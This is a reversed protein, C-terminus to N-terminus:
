DGDVDRWEGDIPKTCGELKGQNGQSGKPDQQGPKEISTALNAQTALEKVFDRPLNWFMANGSKTLWSRKVGVEDRLVKLTLDSIPNHEGDMERKINVARKIDTQRLRIKDCNDNMRLYNNCLEVVVDTLVELIDANSEATKAKMDCAQHLENIIDVGAMEAVLLAISVLESERNAGMEITAKKVKERFERSWALEKLRAETFASSALRGWEDLGDPLNGFEPWFNRLVYDFSHEKFKEIAKMTPITFGRDLLADDKLVGRFTGAKPGYIPIDVVSQTAVDYRRYPAATKKYGQRMMSNRVETIEKGRQVDIEDMLVAPATRMAEALARMSVNECTVGRVLLRLLDLLNTKGSGMSGGFYLYFVVPLLLACKAEFAFLTVIVPHWNEEFYFHNTITTKLIPFLERGLIKCEEETAEVPKEPQKPLLSCHAEDCFQRLIASDHVQNCGLNPYSGKYVSRVKARVESDGLPPSNLKNWELLLTECQQQSLGQNARLRRALAFAVEDRSGEDVGEFMRRWCPHSGNWGDSQSEVEDPETKPEVYVPVIKGIDDPEILTSRLGTKRHIGLPLRVLNGYGGEVIKTQKPFIECRVGAAEALKEAIHKAQRATVRNEFFLWLHYGRGGTHELLIANAYETKMIYEMLKRAVEEANTTDFDWCVWRVESATDLQYIGVTVKGEIHRVLVDSTLPETILTWAGSDTQVAYCDRRNVFLSEITPM